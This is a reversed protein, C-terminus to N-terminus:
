CCRARRMASTRPTCRTRETPHWILWSDITGFALEGHAAAIHAGNVHDLLWKLKTGSFYADIVLGTKARFWDPGPRARAARRLTPEARYPDCRWVIANHIPEGTARNWM